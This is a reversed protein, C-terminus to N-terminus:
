PPLKSTKGEGEGVSALDAKNGRRWVVGVSCEALNPREPDSTEKNKKNQKSKKQNKTTNKSDM